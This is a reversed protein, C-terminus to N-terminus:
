DLCQGIMQWPEVIAVAEEGGAVAALMERGGLEDVTFVIPRGRVSGWLLWGGGFQGGVHEVTALVSEPSVGVLHHPAAHSSTAVAPHTAPMPRRSTHTDRDILQPSPQLVHQRKGQM